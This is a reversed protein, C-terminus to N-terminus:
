IPHQTITIEMNHETVDDPTVIEIVTATKLGTHYSYKLYDKATSTQLLKGEDYNKFDVWGAAAQYSAKCGVPVYVLATENIDGPFVDAVSFMDKRDVDSVIEKIGVCDAFANYGISTLHAPLELKALDKCNKFAYKGISTVYYYVLEDSGEKVLEGLSISDRVSASKIGLDATTLIAEHSITDGKADKAFYCSYTMDNDSKDGVYEGEIINSFGLSNYNATGGNPVFLVSTNGEALSFLGAGLSPSLSRSDVHTISKCGDFAKEGISTLTSPLWIKKLSGCNQFAGSGITKVSDLRLETILTGGFAGAGISKLHSLDITKLSSCNQFANDGISLLDSPLTLSTLKKCDKFANAGITGIGDEIILTELKDKNSFASPSIVDGNYSKGDINV